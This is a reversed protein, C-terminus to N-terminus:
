TRPAFATEGAGLENATCFRVYNSVSPDGLEFQGCQGLRRRIDVEQGLYQWCVRVAYISRSSDPAFGTSLGTLFTLEDDTGYLLTYFTADSARRRQEMVTLSRGNTFAIGDYKVMRPLGAAGGPYREITKTVLCRDELTVQTLARHVEPVNRDPQFHVHYYGVYHMATEINMADAAVGTFEAIRDRTNQLRPPRVRILASFAEHPLLLEHSEVGFFDCIRRLTALSPSTSGALYRKMQHRNIGAARCVASVSRGYSCLVRLNRPLDAESM